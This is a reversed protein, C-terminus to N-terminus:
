NRRSALHATWVEDVGAAYAHDIIDLEARTGERGLLYRAHAFPPATLGPQKVHGREVCERAAAQGMRFADHALSV